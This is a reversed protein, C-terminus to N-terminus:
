HLTCQIKTKNKLRPVVFFSGYQDLFHVGLLSEKQHVSRVCASLELKLRVRVDLLLKFLYRITPRILIATLCKRSCDHYKKEGGRTPRILLRWAANSQDTCTTLVFRSEHM